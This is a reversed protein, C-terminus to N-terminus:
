FHDQDKQIKDSICENKFLLSETTATGKCMCDTASFCSVRSIAEGGLSSSEKCWSKAQIASIM